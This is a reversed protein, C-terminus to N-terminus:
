NDKNLQEDVVWFYIEDDNRYQKRSKGFKILLKKAKETDIKNYTIFDVRLKNKNIITPPPILNSNFDIRLIELSKIEGIEELINVINNGQINLNRLNKFVQM